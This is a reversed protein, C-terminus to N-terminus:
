PKSTGFLFGMVISLHTQVYISRPRDIGYYVQVIGGCNSLIMGIVSSVENYVDCNDSLYRIMQISLVWLIM